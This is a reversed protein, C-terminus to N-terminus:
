TLDIIGSANWQITFTGGSVEKTSAFDLFCVVPDVIPASVTDDYIVAYEAEFDAGTWEVDAADFTVVDGARTWTVSGLAAGGAAYGTGTIEDTIDSKVAHAASYTYTGSLLMIKFTDGDLDITGDGLYEKFSPYIDDAM